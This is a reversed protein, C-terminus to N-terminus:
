TTGAFIREFLQERVTIGWQDGDLERALTFGCSEYLRRAPDLGAFTWLYARHFRNRCFDTATEFLRRGVGQGHFAEDVIFWHLHAGEVPSEGGDVAIGGIIREGAKAVWLGDHREDFRGLFDAMGRAVWREFYQGFGWNQSYYVGHLETIRGIAGPVYGSVYSIEM